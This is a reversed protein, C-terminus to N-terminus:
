SNNSRKAQSTLHWNSCFHCKYVGLELGPNILMQHEATELADKESRFRRKDECNRALRFPQHKQTNNQRPM